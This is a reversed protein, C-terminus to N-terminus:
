GHQRAARNTTPRSMERVVRRPDRTLRAAAQRARTASCKEVRRASTARRGQSVDGAAAPGGGEPAVVTAVEARRLRQLRPQDLEDAAMEVVPAETRCATAIVYGRRAASGSLWQGRRIGQCPGTRLAVPQRTSADQLRPRHPRDGTIQPVFDTRAATKTHQLSAPLSSAYGRPTATIWVTLQRRCLPPAPLM